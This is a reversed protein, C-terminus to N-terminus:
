YGRQGRDNESGVFCVAPKTLSTKCVCNNEILGEVGGLGVIESRCILNNLCATRDGTDLGESIGSKVAGNEQDDNIKGKWNWNKHGEDGMNRSYEGARSGKDNTQDDKNGDYCQPM